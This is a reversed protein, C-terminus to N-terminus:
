NAFAGARHRKALEVYEQWARTSRQALAEDVKRVVRGPMGLVLSSPPVEMGEPLLAGSGIVSGSGVRVGTLIVAGMGILCDADIRCGHLIARHGISVRPGIVCPAGKDVHIVTLDQVNSSEGIVIEALDARLVAGYWVSASPGLKVTGLLTATPAVFVSPDVTSM